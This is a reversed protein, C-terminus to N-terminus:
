VISMERLTNKVEWNEGHVKVKESSLIRDFMDRFSEGPLQQKGHQKEYQAVLTRNKNSMPYHKPKTSSSENVIGTSGVRLGDLFNEERENGSSEAGGITMGVGETVGSGGTMGAYAPIWAEEGKQIGARRPSEEINAPMGPEKGRTESEYNTIGLEYNEGVMEVSKAIGALKGVGGGYQIKGPIPLNKRMQAFIIVNLDYRALWEMLTFILEERRRYDKSAFDLSNIIITTAKTEEILREIAWSEGSFLGPEVSYFRLRSDKKESTYHSDIGSRITMGLQRPTQITNLYLVPGTRPERALAAAALLSASINSGTEEGMCLTIKGREGFVRWQSNQNKVESKTTNMTHEGQFTLFIYVK